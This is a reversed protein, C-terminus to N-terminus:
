VNKILKLFRDLSNDFTSNRLYLDCDDILQKDCFSRYHNLQAVDVPLIIQKISPKLIQFTFHNFISLTNPVYIFSKAFDSNPSYEASRLKREFINSSVLNETNNGFFYANRVSISSYKKYKSESFYNNIMNQYSNETKPVIIEDIDIPIVYDSNGLNRYFCDNYSLVELKRKLWISEKGLKRRSAQDFYFPVKKVIRPFSKLMNLVKQKVITYYIVFNEVGLLKNLLLWQKLNLSIDKKFRLPKVCISFRLKENKPTTKPKIINHSVQPKQCPKKTFAVKPVTNGQGFPDLCNILAPIYPVSSNSDWERNWIPTIRAKVSIVDKRIIQFSFYLFFITSGHLCSFRFQGTKM